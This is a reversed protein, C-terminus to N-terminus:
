KENIVEKDDDVNNTNEVVVLEARKRKRKQNMNVEENAIKNNNL